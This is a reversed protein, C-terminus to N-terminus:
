KRRWLIIGQISFLGVVGVVYGFAFFVFERLTVWDSM